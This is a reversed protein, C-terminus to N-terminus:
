IIKYCFEIIKWSGDNMKAWKLAFIRNRPPHIIYGGPTLETTCNSEILRRMIDTRGLSMIWNTHIWLRTDFIVEPQNLNNTVNKMM